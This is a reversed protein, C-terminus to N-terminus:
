YYLEKFKVITKSVNDIHLAIAKQAADRDHKQLADLLSEHETLSSDARGPVMITRIQFHILQNKIEKIMGVAIPKHSATYIIDHFQRNCKSYSDFSNEKSLERMQDLISRMEQLQADTIESAASGVVILELYKRIEYYELIQDLDLSLVTAGKNDEIIILREQEIMLLAKRVTNRSVGIDEALQAEVLRQAPRFRGDLIRDKIYDYAIQNARIM